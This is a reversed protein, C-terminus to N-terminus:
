SFKNEETINMIEYKYAIRLVSYLVLWILPFIICGLVPITESVNGIAIATICMFVPMLVKALILKPWNSKLNKIATKKLAKGNMIDDEKNM